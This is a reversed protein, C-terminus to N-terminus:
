AVRRRRGLLILLSLGLLAVTAPEPISRLEFDDYFIQGAGSAIGGYGETFQELPDVLTKSATKGTALEEVTINFEYPNFSAVTYRYQAGAEYDAFDATSVSGIMGSLTGNVFRFFQAVKGNQNYRLYYFNEPSQFNWALGPMNLPNAITDSTVSLIFNNGGGSRTQAESNILVTVPNAGTIGLRLQNDLIRVQANDQGQGMFWNGGITAPVGNSTAYSTNARNFDDVIVAAQVSSMIVTGVAMLAIIRKM